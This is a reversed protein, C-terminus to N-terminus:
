RNLSVPSRNEGRRHRVTVFAVAVGAMSIDRSLLLLAEHQCVGGGSQGSARAGSAGAGRPHQERTARSERQQASQCKIGAAPRDAIGNTLLSRLLLLALAADVTL